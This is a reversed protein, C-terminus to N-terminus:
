PMVMTDIHVKHFLGGVVPVTPPIHLRKMQRIQCEHCTKTYWKVDDVLMPWWFYLLLRTQISFVGKHGLDDHAERILGYQREIPVVLQHHGHLERCYLSAMSSFFIPPLMLSPPSSQIQFTLLALTPISSITSRTSGTVQVLDTPHLVL